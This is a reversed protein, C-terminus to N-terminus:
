KVTAAVTGSNNSMNPDWTSSAATATDSIVAGNRSTVQVVMYVGATGGNPIAGLSCTVTGSVSGAAPTSCTGQSPTASVFTTGAPVADMVIVGNAGYPGPDSAAIIYSLSSNHSVSTQSEILQLGLDAPYRLTTTSTASNNATNPDPTAAQVSATNAITSNDPATNSAAVTLTITDSAGNALVPYSVSVSNGNNTCVGGAASACSVLSVTAPLNDTVTVTKADNPGNNVV